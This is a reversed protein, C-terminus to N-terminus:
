KRQYAKRQEILTDRFAQTAELSRLNAVSVAGSILFALGMWSVFYQDVVAKATALTPSGRISVGTVILLEAVYLIPSACCLWWLAAHSHARADWSIAYDGGVRYFRNAYELRASQDEIRGLCKNLLGIQMDNHRYLGVFYYSVFPILTAILYPLVPIDTSATATNARTVFYGVVLAVITQIHTTNIAARSQVRANLETQLAQFMVKADVQDTTDLAKEPLTGSPSHQAASTM